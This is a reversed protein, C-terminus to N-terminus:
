CYGLKVARRRRRLTAGVAGFGMILMAWTSPEPIAATQFLGSQAAIVFGNDSANVIDIRGIASTHQWGAFAVGDSAGAVNVTGLLVDATDYFSVALNFATAQGVYLGVMEFPSTLTARLTGLSFSNSTVCGGICDNFSTGSGWWRLGSANGTTFSVPAIVLGEAVVNFSGPAGPNGFGVTTPSTFAGVGIQAAHGAVPTLLLSASCLFACRRTM